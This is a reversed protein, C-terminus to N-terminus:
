FIHSLFLLKNDSLQCLKHGMYLPQYICVILVSSISRVVEVVFGFLFSAVLNENPNIVPSQVPCSLEEGHFKDKHVMSQACPCDHQFNSAGM